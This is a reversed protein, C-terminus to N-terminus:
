QDEELNSDRLAVYNYDLKARHEQGAIFNIKARM